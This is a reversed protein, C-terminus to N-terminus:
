KAPSRTPSGGATACHAADVADRRAVHLPDAGVLHDDVQLRRELLQELVREVGARGLDLHPQLLVAGVQELHRVVARADRGLIQVRRAGGGRRLEGFEVVQLLEAAEAEAAFASLESAASAVSVSDVRVAAEGTPVASVKPLSPATADRAVAARSTPVQTLTPSSKLLKGTRRSSCRLAAASNRLTSRATCAYAIMQSPTRKTTGCVRPLPPRWTTSRVSPARRRRRCKRRRCCRRRCCAAAAAARRRIREAIAAM